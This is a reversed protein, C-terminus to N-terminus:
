RAIRSAAQPKALARELVACIYSTWPVGAVAAREKAKNVVGVPLRMSVTAKKKAQMHRKIVELTNEGSQAIILNGKKKAEALDDAFCHTEYYEPDIESKKSM